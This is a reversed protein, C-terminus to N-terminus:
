LVQQYCRVKNLRVLEDASFNANELDLMIWIDGERPPKTLERIEINMEFLHIKEWVSKLWCHTVRSGYRDYDENMPQSSIGAEIILLEM